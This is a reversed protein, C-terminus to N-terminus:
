SFIIVVIVPVIPDPWLGKVNLKAAVTATGVANTAKVSYSGTDKTVVQKVTLSNKAGDKEMLVRDSASFKADGKFRNM